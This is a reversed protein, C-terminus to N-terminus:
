QESWLPGLSLGSGTRARGLIFTPIVPGHVFGKLKYEVMIGRLRGFWAWIGSWGEGSSLAM